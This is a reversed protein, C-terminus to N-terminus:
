KYSRLVWWGAGGCGTSFHKLHYRYSNYIDVMVKIEYFFFFFDTTLFYVLKTPAGISLTPQRRRLKAVFEIRNRFGFLIHLKNFFLFFSVSRIDTKPENKVIVNSIDAFVRTETERWNKTKETLSIFVMRTSTKKKNKIFYICDTNFLVILM